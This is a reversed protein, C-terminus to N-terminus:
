SQAVGEIPRGLVAKHLRECRFRITEKVEALERQAAADAPRMQLTELVAIMADIERDLLRSRRWTLYDPQELLGVAWRFHEQADKLAQAQIEAHLSKSVSSDTLGIISGICRTVATRSAAAKRREGHRQLWLTAAVTLGVGLVVGAFNLWDGAGAGEVLSRLVIYAAVVALGAAGGALAEAGREKLGLNM